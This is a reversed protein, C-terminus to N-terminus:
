RGKAIKKMNKAFQARKRTTPNKSKLEKVIFSDKVGGGKKVGGVKKAQATFAGVTGKSKMKEVAKKIFKGAMETDGTFIGKTLCHNSTSWSAGGNSTLRFTYTYDVGKSFDENKNILLKMFEKSIRCFIKTEEEYNM